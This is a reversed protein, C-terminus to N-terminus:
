KTQICFFMQFFMLLPAAAKAMLNFDQVKRIGNSLMSILINQPDGVLLRDSEQHPCRTKPWKGSNQHPLSKRASSKGVVGHYLRTTGFEGKFSATM